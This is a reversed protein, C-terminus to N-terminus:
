HYMDILFLDSYKMHIKISLSLLNLNEENQKSGVMISCKTSSDLGLQTHRIFLQERFDYFIM